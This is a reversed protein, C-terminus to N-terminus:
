PDLEELAECMDSPPFGATSTTSAVTEDSGLGDLLDCVERARRESRAADEDAARDDAERQVEVLDDAVVGSLESYSMGREDAWAVSEAIWEVCGPRDDTEAVCAEVLRGHEAETIGAPEDDALWAVGYGGAAGVALLAVGAGVAVTRRM